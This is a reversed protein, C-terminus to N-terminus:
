ERLLWYSSNNVSVEVVFISKVLFFSIESATLAASFYSAVHDAVM